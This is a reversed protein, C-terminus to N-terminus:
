SGALFLTIGIFVLSIFSGVFMLFVLLAQSPMVVGIVIMITCIAALLYITGTFLKTKNRTSM